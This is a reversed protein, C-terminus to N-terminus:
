ERHKCRKELLAERALRVIEARASRGAHVRHEVLETSLAANGHLDVDIRPLQARTLDIADHARDFLDAAVQFGEVTLPPCLYLFRDLLDHELQREGLM